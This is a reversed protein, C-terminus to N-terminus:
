FSNHNNNRAEVIIRIMTSENETTSAHKLVRNFM